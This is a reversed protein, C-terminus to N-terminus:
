FKLGVLELGPVSGTSIRGLEMMPATEQPDSCFFMWSVTTTRNNAKQDGSVTSAPGETPVSRRGPGDDQPQIWMPDGRLCKQLRNRVDGQGKDDTQRRSITVWDNKNVTKEM